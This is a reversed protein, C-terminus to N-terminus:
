GNKGGAAQFTSAVAREPWANTLTPAGPQIEQSHLHFRSKTHLPKNPLAM